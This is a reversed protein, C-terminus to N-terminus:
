GKPFEGKYFPKDGSPVTVEGSMMDFYIHNRSARHKFLATHKRDDIAMLMFESPDVKRYDMGQRMKKDYRTPLYLYGKGKTGKKKLM